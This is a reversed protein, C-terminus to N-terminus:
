VEVRGASGPEYRRYELEVWWAGDDDKVLRYNLPDLGRPSPNPRGDALPLPRGTESFVAGHCPCLLGDDVSVVEGDAGEDGDAGEFKRTALEVAGSVQCGAHPCVSSFVRLETNEPPVDVGTARIVWARGVTQREYRTWADTRGGKVAVLRPVGPALDSLKVARDTVAGAPAASLPAALFRAAPWAVAAACTGYVGRAAWSLWRRRAPNTVPLRFDPDLPPFGPPVPM